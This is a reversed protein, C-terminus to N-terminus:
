THMVDLKAGLTKALTDTQTLTNASCDSYDVAVLIKDIQM